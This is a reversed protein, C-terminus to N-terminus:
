LKAGCKGCFKKDADNEKGCVPCVIPEGQAASLQPASKKPKKGYEYFGARLLGLFMPAFLGYILSLLVNIILFLIGVYPIISLLSLIISLFVYAVTPLIVAIFMNLKLGKTDEMSKKLADTASIEKERLLIYPTFAYALSKILAIVPGAIPILFWLLLWLDKWCMGGATHAFTKFDTFPSLLTKSEAESGNYVSYYVAALGATIAAVVPISIIPVNVGLVSVIFSLLGGLLSIGWLRFPLKGLIYLTRSYIGKIM